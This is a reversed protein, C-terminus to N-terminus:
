GQAFVKRATALSLFLTRSMGAVLRFGFKEYFSVALENKADVVLMFAAADAKLARAMADALM